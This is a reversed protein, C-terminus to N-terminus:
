IGSSNQEMVMRKGGNRDEEEEDDDQEEWSSKKPEDHRFNFIEVFMSHSQTKRLQITLFTYSSGDLSSSSPDM